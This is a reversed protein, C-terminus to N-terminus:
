STSDTRKRRTFLRQTANGTQRSDLYVRTDTIWWWKEESPKNRTRRFYVIVKKKKKKLEIHPSQQDCWAVFHDVPERCEAEQGDSIRGVIASDVSYKQLHCSVLQVPLRLHVSHLSTCNLTCDGTNSRRQRCVVRWDWLSHDIWAATSAGVQIKQLKKYFLIPQIIEFSCSFDFFIIRVTSSTQGSSLPSTLAPM